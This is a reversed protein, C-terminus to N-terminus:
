RQPNAGANAAATAAPKPAVSQPGGYIAPATNDVPNVPANDHDDFRHLALRLTGETDGLFIKQADDLSVALTVTKTSDAASKSSAGKTPSQGPTDDYAQAVALVKVDQALTTTVVRRPRDSGDKVLFSGDQTGADIRQFIAIVDVSDGPQLLNGSTVAESVNISVGRMGSPVQGSFGIEKPNAALQPTLLQEGASVPTRVIEGVATKTDTFANPLRLSAPVQKIALMSATIVTRAPIDQKAVLVPVTVPVDAKTQTNSLLRYILFASLLGFALSLLLARRNNSPAAEQATWTTAM